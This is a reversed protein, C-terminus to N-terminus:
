ARIEARQVQVPVDLKERLDAADIRLQERRDARTTFLVLVLEAALHSSVAAFPLGWLLWQGFGIGSGIAADLIQSTILHAGAGVLTAVASLLVVTPFLLALARVLRPRAAFAGALACYVPVVLAARGSTSPVLLATALLGLTILHFLGRASRAQGVLAVALRAPLGTRNIGAALVFAAVLLWIQDDGLSAFLQEADLAGLVVLAAAAALAVFTDDLRNSTWGLVAAVFVLVTILGTRSLEGPETTDPATLAAAVGFLLLAGATIAIAWGRERHPESMERTTRVPSTAYDTRVRETDQDGNM